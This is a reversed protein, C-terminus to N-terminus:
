SFGLSLRRRSAAARRRLIAFALRCASPRSARYRLGRISQPGFGRCLIKRIPCFISQGIRESQTIRNHERDGRFM